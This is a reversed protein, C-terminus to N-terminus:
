ALAQSMHANFLAQPLAGRDHVAARVGGEYNVDFAIRQHIYPMLQSSRVAVTSGDSTQGFNFVFDHSTRQMAQAAQAPTILGSNALAISAAEGAARDQGNVIAGLNAPTTRGEALQTSYELAQAQINIPKAWDGQNGVEFVYNGSPMNVDSHQETVEITIQAGAPLGAITKLATSPNTNIQSNLSDVTPTDGDSNGFSVAPLSLNTIRFNGKAVGSLIRSNISHINIGTADNAEQLIELGHQELAFQRSRVDSSFQYGTAAVVPNFFASFINERVQEEMVIGQVMYFPRLVGSLARSFIGSGNIDPLLADGMGKRGMGEGMFSQLEGSIPIRKIGAEVLPKIFYLSPGFWLGAKLGEYGSEARLLWRFKGGLSMDETTLNNYYDLQANLGRMAEEYGPASKDLGAMQIQLQATRMARSAELYSLNDLNDYEIGLLSKREEMMQHYQTRFDDYGFANKLMRGWVNNPMSYVYNQIDPFGALGVALHPIVPLATKAIQHSLILPGYNGGLRGTLLNYSQGLNEFFPKIGPATVGFLVLGLSIRTHWKSLASGEAFLARGTVSEYLAPAFTFGLTGGWYLGRNLAVYAFKEVATAGRVLIMAGDEAIRYFQGNRLVNDTWIPKRLNTLVEKYGGIGALFLSGFTINSALRWGDSWNKTYRYNGNADTANIFYLATGSGVAGLNSIAGWTNFSKLSPTGDFMRYWFAKFGSSGGGRGGLGVGVHFFGAIILAKNVMYKTEAPIYQDSISNVVLGSLGLALPVSGTLNFGRVFRGEAANFKHFPDIRTRVNRWFSVSQGADVPQRMAGDLNASKVAAYSVLFPIGFHFAANYGEYRNGTTLNAALGGVLSASGVGIGVRLAEPIVALRATIGPNSAGLRLMMLTAATAGFATIGRGFSYDEGKFRALAYDAGLGLSGGVVGTAVYSGFTSGKALGSLPKVISGLASFGIASRWASDIGGPSSITQNFYGLGQGKITGVIGTALMMSGFYVPARSTINSIGQVAH